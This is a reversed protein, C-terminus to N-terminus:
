ARVIHRQDAALVPAEPTSEASAREALDVDTSPGGRGRAFLALCERRATTALWRPLRDPARIAHAKRWCAYGHEARRGGTEPRQAPVARRGGACRRRAPPRSAALLAPFADDRVPRGAM